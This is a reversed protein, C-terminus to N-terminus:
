GTRYLPYLAGTKMDYIYRYAGEPHVLHTNWDIPLATGVLADGCILNLKNFDMGCYELMEVPELTNLDVGKLLGGTFNYYRNSEKPGPECPAYYFVDDVVGYMHDDFVNEAVLESEGQLNDLSIRRVSHSLLEMTMTTYPQYTVVEYDDCFYLYSEHLFVGEFDSSMSIQVEEDAQFIEEVNQLALDAQYVTGDSDKLIVKENYVGLLSLKGEGVMVTTIEGGKKSLGNVSYRSVGQASVGQHAIYYLNQDYSMFQIPEFKATAICEREAKGTDYRYIEYGRPNEGPKDDISSYYIDRYHYIIPPNGASEYADLVFVWCNGLWDLCEESEGHTHSTDPCMFYSEPLIKVESTRMDCNIEAVEHLSIRKLESGGDVYYFDGKYMASSGSSGLFARKSYDYMGYPSQEEETVGSLEDPEDYSCATLPITAILLSVIAFLSILRKM